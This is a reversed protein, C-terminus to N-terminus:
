KAGGADRAKIMANAIVYASESMDSESGPEAQDLPLKRGALIGALAQGAFYDRLSM